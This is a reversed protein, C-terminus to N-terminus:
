DFEEFKNTIHNKNNQFTIYVEIGIPVIEM